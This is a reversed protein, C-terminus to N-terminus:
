TTSSAAVGSMGVPPGVHIMCSSPGTSDFYFNAISCRDGSISLIPDETVGKLKAVGESDGLLNITNPLTINCRYTGAPFYVVGPGADIAAQIAATDDAVGDGVAGWDRVDIYDPVGALAGLPVVAAVACVAISGLFGRRNLM